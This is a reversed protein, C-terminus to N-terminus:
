LTLGMLEDIQDRLRQRDRALTRQTEFDQDQEARRLGRNVRALDLQLFTLRLAEASVDDNEARLVVDKILV